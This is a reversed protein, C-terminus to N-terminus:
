APKEEFATNFLDYMLNRDEEHRGPYVMTVSTPAGNMRVIYQGINASALTRQQDENLDYLETVAEINSGDLEAMVVFRSNSLM